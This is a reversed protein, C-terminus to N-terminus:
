RFPLTNSDPKEARRGSYLCTQLAGTRRGANKGVFQAPLLRSRNVLCETKM